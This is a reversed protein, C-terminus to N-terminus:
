EAVEENNDDTETPASTEVQKVFEVYYKRTNKIEDAIGADSLSFVGMGTNEYDRAQFTDLVIYMGQDDYQIKPTEEPFLKKIAAEAMSVRVFNNKFLKVENILESIKM